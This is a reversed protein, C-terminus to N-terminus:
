DPKLHIDDQEIELLKQLLHILEPLHYKLTDWVIESDLRFYEHAVLNRLDGM